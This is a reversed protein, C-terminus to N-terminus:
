LRTIGLFEKLIRVEGVVLWIPTEAPKIRKLEELLAPQPQAKRKGAHQDLTNILEARSTSFVALSKTVRVAYSLDGIILLKRDGLKETTFSVKALDAVAEASRILEAEDIDGELILNTELRSETAHGVFTIRELRNILMEMPAISKFFPEDPFIMAMLKRTADFPKDKGVVKKGLPSSYIAKIDIGFAFSSNDPYLTTLDDAKAAAGSCLLVVLAMVRTSGM